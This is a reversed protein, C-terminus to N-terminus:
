RKRDQALEARKLYDRYTILNFEKIIKNISLKRDIVEITFIAEDGFTEIKLRDKYREIIKKLKDGQFDWHFITRELNIDAWVWHSFRNTKVLWRGTNDIIGSTLSWIGAVIYVQYLLSIANLIKGAPYASSFVLLKAGNDVQYKLDYHWNADFCIFTGIRGFETEIPLQDKRGPYIGKKLEIETPHIKDYKGVIEGKRNVFFCRNYIKGEIVDYSSGCVWCNTKKSINKLFYKVKIYKNIEKKKFEIGTYAFIEPLVVFDPNINRIENFINEIYTLNDEIKKIKRYEYAMSVAVTRM